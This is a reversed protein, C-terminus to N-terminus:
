FSEYMKGKFSRMFYFYSFKDLKGSKPTPKQQDEMVHEFFRKKDSVTKPTRASPPPTPSQFIRKSVCFILFFSILNLILQLKLFWNRPLLIFSFSQLLTSFQMMLISNPAWFFPLCGFDVIWNADEATSSKLPRKTVVSEHFQIPVFLRDCVTLFFM